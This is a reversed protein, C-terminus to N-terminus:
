QNTKSEVSQGTELSGNAFEGVSGDGVVVHQAANQIKEERSNMEGGIMEDIQM